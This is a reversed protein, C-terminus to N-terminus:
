TVKAQPNVWIKIRRNIKRENWWDCKLINELKVKKENKNQTHIQNLMLKIGTKTAKKFKIFLQYRMEAAKKLIVWNMFM